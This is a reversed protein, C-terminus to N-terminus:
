EKERVHIVGNGVGLYHPMENRGQVRKTNQQRRINAYHRGVYVKYKTTSVAVCFLVLHFVNM